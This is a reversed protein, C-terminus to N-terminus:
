YSCLCLSFPSTELRDPATILVTTIHILLPAVPRRVEVRIYRRSNGLTRPIVVTINRHRHSTRITDILRKVMRHRTRIPVTTRIRITIVACLFFLRECRVFPPSKGLRHRLDPIIQSPDDEDKITNRICRTIIEIPIPMMLRLDTTTTPIAPRCTETGNTDEHRDTVWRSPLRRLPVCIDMAIRVRVTPM